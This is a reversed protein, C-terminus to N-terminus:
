TRRGLSKVSSILQIILEFAVFTTVKDCIPLIVVVVLKRVLPRLMMGLRWYMMKHGSLFPKFTKSNVSTCLSCNSILLSDEVGALLM